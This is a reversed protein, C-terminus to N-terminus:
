NTPSERDIIEAYKVVNVPPYLKIQNAVGIRLLLSFKKLTEIPIEGPRVGHLLIQEAKYATFKGLTYYNSVLGFMAQAERLPTETSAFTPLRNDIAALTLAPGVVATFSDPGIYLFEAGAEKAERVLRPVAGADPAGAATLPAPKEILTFGVRAGAARLAKVNLVSNTELPSYIVALRTFPRYSRIAKLQANLPPLFSTGTVNARPQDLSQVIGAGVPDSVLTFVVPIDTIHSQPQPDNWPGVLGLTTSTGWSYVLDPKLARIEAIVAPLRTVDRDLNRLIIENPIHNESLYDRFGDEVRTAGRWVVMVIRFPRPRPGPGSVVAGTAAPPVVEPAVPAPVAAPAPVVPAPPPVPAAAAEPVAPPAAAVPAPQDPVPKHQPLIAEARSGGAGSGTLAAVALVVVALGHRLRRWPFRASM